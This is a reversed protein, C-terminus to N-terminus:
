GAVVRSDRKLRTSTVCGWATPKGDDRGSFKPTESLFAYYYNMSLIEELVIDMVEADGAM